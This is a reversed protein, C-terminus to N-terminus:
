TAYHDHFFPLKAGFRGSRGNLLHIEQGDRRLLMKLEFNNFIYM